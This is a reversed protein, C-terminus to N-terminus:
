VIRSVRPITERSNDRFLKKVTTVHLRYLEAEVIGGVKVGM